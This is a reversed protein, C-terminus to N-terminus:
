FGGLTRIESLSYPGHSRVHDPSSSDRGQVLEPVRAEESNGSHGRCEM